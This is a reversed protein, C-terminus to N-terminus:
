RREKTITDSLPEGKIKVPKVKLPHHKKLPLRLFGRKALSAIAEEIGADNEISDLGHLVAVPTGRDTIVVNDGERTLRVYYSLRDKLTKIGVIQM